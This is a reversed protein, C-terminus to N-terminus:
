QPRLICGRSLVKKLIRFIFLRFTASQHFVLFRSLPNVEIFNSVDKTFSVALSGTQSLPHFTVAQPRIGHLLSMKPSSFKIWFRGYLRSWVGGLNYWRGM